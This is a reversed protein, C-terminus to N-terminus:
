FEMLEPSSWDKDRMCFIYYSTRICICTVKVATCKILSSDIKLTNLMTFFSRADKSFVGGTTMVLNIFDISRYTRCLAEDHLLQSCKEAKRKANSEANSEHGVTLEIIYMKNSKDSVIMDPRLSPGTIIDPTSFRGPLDVFIKKIFPQLVNALNLLISNHCWTYRDLCSSYGSLILKKTQVYRCHSCSATLSKGWRFLNSLSPRTDNMYRVTYNNIEHPLMHQAKFWYERASPLACSWLEKVVLGQVQLNKVSNVKQSRISKLAEKATSFTDYQINKESTGKFLNLMDPNLSKKVCQRITIQCLTFKSSIALLEMGFKTKSLQLIEDTGSAPINLLRRFYNHCLLDLYCPCIKYPM